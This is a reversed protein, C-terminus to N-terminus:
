ERPGEWNTKVYAYYKRLEDRMMRHQLRKPVGSPHWQFVVREALGTSYVMKVTAVLYTRCERLEADTYSDPKRM